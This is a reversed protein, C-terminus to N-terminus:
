AGDCSKQIQFIASVKVDYKYLLVKNITRNANANEPNAAFTNCIRQVALPLVVELQM